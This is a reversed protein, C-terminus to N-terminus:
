FPSYYVIGLQLIMYSSVLTMSGTVIMFFKWPLVSSHIYLLGYAIFGGPIPAGMCSIWWLPQLAGQVAPVFFMGMTIEIAPVIPAEVMGLFFRIPILGGYSTATCHLFVIVSWLFITGAM